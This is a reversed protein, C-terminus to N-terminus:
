FYTIKKFFVGLLLHGSKSFNSSHKKLHDGFISKITSLQPPSKKKYSKLTIDEQENKWIVLFKRWFFTLKQTMKRNKQFDSGVGHKLRESSPPTAGNLPINPCTQSNQFFNFFTKSTSLLKKFGGYVSKCLDQGLPFM